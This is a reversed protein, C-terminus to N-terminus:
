LYEIVFQHAGYNTNKDSQRCFTDILKGSLFRGTSFNGM